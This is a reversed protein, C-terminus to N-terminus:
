DRKRKRTLMAVARLLADRLTADKRIEKEETLLQYFSEYGHSGLVDAVAEEETRRLNNGMSTYAITRQIM